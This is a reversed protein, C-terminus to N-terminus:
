LTPLVVTPRLEVGLQKWAALIDDKGFFGVHRYIERGTADFFIQTPIIDVNYPAGADPNKWVDIFVVDLAGAYDRRLDALVPVMMKCPVCKDAGVDVLRPRNSALPATIPVDRRERQAIVATVAVALAAVILLKRSRLNM